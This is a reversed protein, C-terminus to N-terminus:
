KYIKLSLRDRITSKGQAVNIQSGKINSISIDIKAKEDISM